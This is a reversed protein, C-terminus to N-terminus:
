SISIMCISVVATTQGVVAFDQPHLVVNVDNGNRYAEVYFTVVVVTGSRMCGELDADSTIPGDFAGESGLKLIVPPAHQPIYGRLAPSQALARKVLHSVSTLQKNDGNADPLHDVATAKRYHDFEWSYTPQGSSIDNWRLNLVPPGDFNQTAAYSEFM